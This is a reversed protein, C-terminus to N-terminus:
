MTMAEIFIQRRDITRAAPTTSDHGVESCISTTMQEQQSMANTLSSPPYYTQFDGGFSSHSCQAPTNNTIIAGGERRRTREMLIMMLEEEIRQQERDIRQTEMRQQKLAQSRMLSDKIELITVGNQRLRIHRRQASLPQLRADAADDHNNIMAAANSTSTSTAATSTSRRVPAMKMKYTRVAEWGMTIPPGIASVSIDGLITPMDRVDITSAFRVAASAPKQRQQPRAAGEQKARGGRHRHHLSDRDHPGKFAEKEAIASSSRSRQQHHQDNDDNKQMGAVATKSSSSSALEEELSSTSASSVTSGCDDHSDNRKPLHLVTVAIKKRLVAKKMAIITEPVIM